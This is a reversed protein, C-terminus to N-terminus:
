SDQNQPGRLRLLEATTVLSLPVRTAALQEEAQRRAAAVTKRYEEAVDATAVDATGEVVMMAAVDKPVETWVGSKGGDGTARSVIVLDKDPYKAATDRIKQFYARL